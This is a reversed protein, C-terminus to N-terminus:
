RLPSQLEQFPYADRFLIGQNWMIFPQRLFLLLLLLIEQPFRYEGQHHLTGIQWWVLDLPLRCVLLVQGVAPDM